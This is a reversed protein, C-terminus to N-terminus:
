HKSVTPQAAPLADPRYFFPPHHLHASIPGSPTAGLRITWTHADTLRRKCWLTWFNSEPMPQGPNDQFFPQLTTTTHHTTGLLPSLLLLRNSFINGPLEHLKSSNLTIIRFTVAAARQSAALSSTMQRHYIFKM